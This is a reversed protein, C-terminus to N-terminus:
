KKWFQWWPSKSGTEVDEFMEPDIFPEQQNTEISLNKNEFSELVERMSQQTKNHLQQEQNLLQRLDQERERSHSLQEKLDAITEMLQQLEHNQTNTEKMSSPILAKIEQTENQKKIKNDRKQESSITSNEDKTLENLMKNVDEIHYKKGNKEEVGELNNQKIYRYVKSRSLGTNKVIESVSLTESM